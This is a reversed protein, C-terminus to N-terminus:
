SFKRYGQTIETIMLFTDARVAPWQSTFQNREQSAVLSRLSHSCLHSIDPIEMRWIEQMRLSGIIKKKRPSPFLVSIFM